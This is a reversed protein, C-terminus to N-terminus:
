DTTDSDTIHTLNTAIPEYEVNKITYTQKQIKQITNSAATLIYRHDTIDTDHLAITYNLDLIDTVIHDIISGSTNNKRTFYESSIQNLILFGNSLVDDVYRSVSESEIDLINLNFDGFFM